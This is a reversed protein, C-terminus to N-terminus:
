ETTNRDLSLYDDLLIARQRLSDALGDMGDTWHMLLKPDVHKLEKTMLALMMGHYMEFSNMLLRLTDEADLGSEIPQTLRNYARSLTTM